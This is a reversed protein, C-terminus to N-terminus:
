RVKVIDLPRAYRDFIIHGTVKTNIVIKTQLAVFHKKLDLRVIFLFVFHAYVVTKSIVLMLLASNESIRMNETVRCHSGQKMEM